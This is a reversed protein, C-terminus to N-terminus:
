VAQQIGIPSNDGMNGAGGPVDDLLGDTQGADGQPQAVRGPQALGPVQDFLQPHGTGLFPQGLGIEDQQQHIGAFRQGRLIDL